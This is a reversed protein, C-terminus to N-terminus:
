LEPRGSLIDAASRLRGWNYSDSSPSFYSDSSLRAFRRLRKVSAKPQIDFIM